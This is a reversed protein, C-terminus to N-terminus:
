VEIIIKRGSILLADVCSTFFLFPAIPKLKVLYILVPISVIFGLADIFFCAISFTKSGFLGLILASLAPLLCVGGFWYGSFM